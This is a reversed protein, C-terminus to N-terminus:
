RAAAIGADEFIRRAAPSALKDLLSRVADNPAASGRLAPAAEYHTVNQVEAPLPGVLVLGREKLLLIETMAGMGIQNGSAHLVHEAVSAGDAFRLTKAQLAETLGWRKILAEVYLGTSARNYVVADAELLARKLTDASTLDPRPGGPRVAV